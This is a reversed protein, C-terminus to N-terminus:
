FPAVRRRFVLHSRAFYTLPASWIHILRSFPSFGLLALASLIHIKYSLPVGRMLTPDPTFVVIGRIWPAITELVYHHGFVVNYLGAGIVFMLLILTLWDNLRTTARVRRSILRRLFLLISGFFAAAGVLLGTYYAIKTHTQGDIGVADYIRQPILLGGAHGALTLLIGWHFITIGYKLTDKDLLESSHANWGLPDTLYRHIHGVAFTALALYPFIVFALTNLVDM